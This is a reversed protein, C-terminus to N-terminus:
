EKFIFDLWNFKDSKLHDKLKNSCLARYEHLETTDLLSLLHLLYLFKLKKRKYFLKKNLIPFNKKQKLIKQIKLRM